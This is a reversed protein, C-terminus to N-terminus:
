EGYMINEPKIDRHIINAKHCHHLAKLLKSMELAVENEKMPKGSETVKAFLEGGKCLEM